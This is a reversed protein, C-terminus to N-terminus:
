KKKVPQRGLPGAIRRLSNKFEEASQRAGVQRALAEFRKKQEDPTLEPEKRKPMHRLHAQEAWDDIRPLELTRRTTEYHRPRAPHM